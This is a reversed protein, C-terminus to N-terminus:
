DINTYYYEFEEATIEKSYLIVTDRGLKREAALYAVLNTDTVATKTEITFEGHKIGRKQITVIHYETNKM